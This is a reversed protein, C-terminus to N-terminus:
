DGGSDGEEVSELGDVVEPYRFGGDRHADALLLAYPVVDAQAGHLGVAIHDVVAPEGFNEFLLDFGGRFRKMDGFPLLLEPLLAVGVHHLHFGLEGFHTINQGM